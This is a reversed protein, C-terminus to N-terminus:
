LTGEEGIRWNNPYSKTDKHWWIHTPYFPNYQNYILIISYLNGRSKRSKVGHNELSSTAAGFKVDMYCLM